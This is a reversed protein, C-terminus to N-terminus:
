RRERLTAAAEQVARSSAELAPVVREQMSQNLKRLEEELRDGRARERDLTEAVRGFLVKVALLALSALVGLAGYQLLPQDMEEAAVIFAVVPSLTLFGVTWM